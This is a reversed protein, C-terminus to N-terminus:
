TDRLSAKMGNQSAQTMLLHIFHWDTKCRWPCAKEYLFPVYVKVLFISLPFYNKPGFNSSFWFIWVACDHQMFIKDCQADTAMECADLFFCALFFVRYSKLPWASPQTRSLSAALSQLSSCARFKSHPSLLATRPWPCSAPLSVIKCHKDPSHPHM